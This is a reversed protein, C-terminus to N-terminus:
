EDHTNTNSAHTFKQMIQSLGHKMTIAGFKTAMSMSMKNFASGCSESIYQEITDPLFHLVFLLKVLIGVVCLQLLHGSYVIAFIILTFLSIGMYLIDNSLRTEKSKDLHYTCLLLTVALLAYSFHLCLSTHLFWYMFLMLLLVRAKMISQLSHAARLKYM